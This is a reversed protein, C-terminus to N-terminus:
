VILKPAAPVYLSNKATRKEVYQHLQQLMVQERAMTLFFYADASSINETNSTIGIEGTDPDLEIMLVINANTPEGPEVIHGIDNSM